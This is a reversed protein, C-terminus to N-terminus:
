SSASETAGLNILSQFPAQCKPCDVVHISGTLWTGCKPCTNWKMDLSIGVMIMASVLVILPLFILLFSGILHMAIGGGVVALVILSGNIWYSLLLRKTAAKRLRVVDHPSPDVPPSRRKRIM